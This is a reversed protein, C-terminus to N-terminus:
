GAAFACHGRDQTAAVACRDEPIKPQDSHMSIGAMDPRQLFDSAEMDPRQLFDSAEMPACAEDGDGPTHSNPPSVVISTLAREVFCSSCM